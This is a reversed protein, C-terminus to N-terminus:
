LLHVGHLHVGVSVPSSVLFHEASKSQLYQLRLKKDNKGATYIELAISIRYQGDDFFGGFYTMNFVPRKNTDHHHHYM